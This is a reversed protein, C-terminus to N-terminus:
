ASISEANHVKNQLTVLQEMELQHSGIHESVKNVADIYSHWANGFEEYMFENVQPFIDLNRLKYFTYTFIDSRCKLDKVCEYYLGKLEDFKCEYLMDLYARVHDAVNFVTYERHKVLKDKEIGYDGFPSNESDKLVFLTDDVYYRKPIGWTGVSNRNCPVEFAVIGSVYKM